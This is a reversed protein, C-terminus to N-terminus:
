NEHVLDPLVQKVIQAIEFSGGHSLIHNALYSLEQSNKHLTSSIETDMVFYLDPQDPLIAIAHRTQNAGHEIWLYGALEGEPYAEEFGISGSFLDHIDTDSLEQNTSVVWNVHLGTKNIADTLSSTERIKRDVDEITLHAGLAVLSTELCGYTLGAEVAQEHLSHAAAINQEREQSGM